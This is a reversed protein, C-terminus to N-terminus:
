DGFTLTGAAAAVSALGARLRWVGAEPVLTLAYRFLVEQAKGEARYTSPLEILVSAQDAGVSVLTHRPSGWRLESLTAFDRTFAERLQERSRFVEDANTGFFLLEGQTALCSMCGEVDARAYHDLFSMVAHQVERETQNM